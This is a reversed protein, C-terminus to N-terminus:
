RVNRFSLFFDSILTDASNTAQSFESSSDRGHKERAEPSKSTMKPVGQSSAADGLKVKRRMHGIGIYHDTETDLNERKILAYNYQLCVLLCVFVCLFMTM